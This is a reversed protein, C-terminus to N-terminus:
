SDRDNGLRSAALLGAARGSPGHGSSRNTIRRAAGDGYYLLAAALLYGLEMLGVVKFMGPSLLFYLGVPLFSVLFAILVVGPSGSLSAIIVAVALVATPVLAFTSIRALPAYPPALLLVALLGLVVVASLVGAAKGVFFWNM